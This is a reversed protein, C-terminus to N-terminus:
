YDANVLWRMQHAFDGTARRQTVAVHLWGVLPECALFLNRAGERQCEYDERRPRGPQPLMPPRTEALLSSFIPFGTGQLYM